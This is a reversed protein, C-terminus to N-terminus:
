KSARQFAALQFGGLRAIEVAALTVIGRGTSEWFARYAIDKGGFDPAITCACILNIAADAADVGSGDMTELENRKRVEVSPSRFLVVPAPLKAEALQPLRSAIDFFGIQYGGALAAARGARELRKGSLKGARELEVALEAQAAAEDDVARQEAAEDGDTQAKDAAATAAALRARIDEVKAV